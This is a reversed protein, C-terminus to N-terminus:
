HHATHATHAAHTGHATHATHATPQLQVFVLAAFLVDFHWNGLPPHPAGFPLIFYLIVACILVCVNQTILSLTIVRKRDMDDVMKGMM